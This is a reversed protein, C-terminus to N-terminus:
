TQQLTKRCQLVAEYCNTLNKRAEEVITEDIVKGNLMLHIIEGVETRISTELKMLAVRLEKNDM